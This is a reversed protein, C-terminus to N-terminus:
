AVPRRYALSGHHLELDVTLNDALDPSYFRDRRSGSNVNQRPEDPQVACTVPELALAECCNLKFITRYGFRLNVPKFRM